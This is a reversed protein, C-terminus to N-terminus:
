GKASPLTATIWEGAMRAWITGPFRETVVLFQRRAAGSTDDHQALRDAERYLLFAANEAATTSAHASKFSVSSEGSGPTRIRDREALAALARRRILEAQRTLMEIEADLAVPPQIDGSHPAPAPQSLLVFLLVAVAMALTSARQASRRMLLTRLAALGLPPTRPPPFGRDAALLLAQLDEDFADSRM